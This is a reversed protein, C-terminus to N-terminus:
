DPFMLLLRTNWPIWRRIVRLGDDGNEVRSLYLSYGGDLIVVEDYFARGGVIKYKGPAFNGDGAVDYAQIELPYNM